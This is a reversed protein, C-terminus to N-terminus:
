STENQTNEKTVTGRDNTFDDKKSSPDSKEKAIDERNRTWAHSYNLARAM